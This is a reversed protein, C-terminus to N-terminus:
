VRAHLVVPFSISQACDSDPASLFVVATNSDYLLSCHLKAPRATLKGRSRSRRRLSPRRPSPRVLKCPHPLARCWWLFTDSYRRQWTVRWTSHRWKRDSASQDVRHSFYICVSSCSVCIHRPWRDRQKKSSITQWHRPEGLTGRVDSVPEAKCTKNVRWTGYQVNDVWCWDGKKRSWVDARERECDVRM